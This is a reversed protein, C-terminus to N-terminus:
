SQPADLPRFVERTAIFGAGNFKFLYNSVRKSIPSQDILGQLRSIIEELTEDEVEDWVIVMDNLPMMLHLQKYQQYKMIGALINKVFFVNTDLQGNVEVKMVREWHTPRLQVKPGFKKVFNTFAVKILTNKQFGPDTLHERRLFEKTNDDAVFCMTFDPRQDIGYIIKEGTIIVEENKGNVERINRMATAYELKGHVLRPMIRPLFYSIDKAQMAKMLPEFINKQQSM